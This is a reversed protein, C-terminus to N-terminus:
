TATPACAREDFARGRLIPINLIDFYNASIHANSVLQSKDTGELVVSSGHRTGSLPVPIAFGVQDIGPQGALRETLQRQFASARADDYGQHRLDFTTM